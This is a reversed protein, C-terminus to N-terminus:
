KGGGRKIKSLTVFDYAIYMEDDPSVDTIDYTVGNVVCQQMNELQNNHRVAITSTDELETGAALYKQTMTTKVRAYHLTLKKKFSQFMLAQVMKLRDLLVLILRKTLSILKYSSKLQSNSSLQLAM